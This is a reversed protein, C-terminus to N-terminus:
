SHFSQTYASKMWTTTKNWKDAEDLYKFVMCCFMASHLLFVKRESTLTLLNFAEPLATIKDKFKSTSGGGGGGGMDRVHM